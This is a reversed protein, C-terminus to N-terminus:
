GRALRPDVLGRQLHQWDQEPVIRPIIDFPFLRSGAEGAVRFADDFPPSHKCDPLLEREVVNPFVIAARALLAPGPFHVDDSM